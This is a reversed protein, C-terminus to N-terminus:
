KGNYVEGIRNCWGNLEVRDTNVSSKDVFEKQSLIQKVEAEWGILDDYKVYTALGLNADASVHDSMIVPVYAAQSELAVLPLGETFSPLLVIDTDSFAKAKDADKPLFCVEREVSLKEIEKLMKVYYVDDQPFGIFTLKADINAELLSKLLRISFLQNKNSCFYGIQLLHCGTHATKVVGRYFSIDIPNLANIFKKSLFLSEGAQTSCALATTAYQQILKKCYSHYWLLVKNNGRRNYTGHAHAIRIPIGNLCAYRLFIGAEIGNHCHIIDYKKESFIKKLFRKIQIHRFPYLVKHKDYNLLSVKFVNGGYSVFELDYDGNEDNYTVIDFTFYDSLNRVITMVVNPVGAKILASNIVLLVCKKKNM